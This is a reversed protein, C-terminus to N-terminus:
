VWLYSSIVILGRYCSKDALRDNHSKSVYVVSSSGWSTSGVILLSGPYQIAIYQSKSLGKMWSRNYMDCIGLRPVHLHGQKYREWPGTQAALIQPSEQVVSSGGSSEEARANRQLRQFVLM